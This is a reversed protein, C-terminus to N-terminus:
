PATDTGFSLMRVRTTIKINWFM